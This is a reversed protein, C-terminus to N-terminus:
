QQNLIVKNKKKIIFILLCSFISIIAIHKIPVLDSTPNPDTGIIYPYGSKKWKKFGEAMNSVNTYGLTNLKEAGTKSRIGNDCYVIIETDIEEPLKDANSFLFYVNINVAGQIHGEDFYEASSRVDLIFIEPNTDIRNKAEEVTIDDYEQASIKPIKNVTLLCTICILVIIKGKLRLEIM